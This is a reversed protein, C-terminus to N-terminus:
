TGHNPCAQEQADPKNLLKDITADLLATYGPLDLCSLHPQGDLLYLWGTDYPDTDILTVDKELAANSAAFSGEGVCYVDAVAKFGEVWGITEGVTVADGPQARFGHEVMEGLMRTAFKTFGVRWRGPSLPELWYHAPAFLRGKPLRTTFRSRKYYVTSQPDLPMEERGAM